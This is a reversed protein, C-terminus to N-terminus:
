VESTHNYAVSAIYLASNFNYLRKLMYYNEKYKDDNWKAWYADREDEFYKAKADYSLVEETESPVLILGDSMGDSKYEIVIECGEPILSGIEITGEAKNINYLGQRRLHCGYGTLTAGFVSNYFLQGGGCSFDGDLISELYATTESDSKHAPPMNKDLTLIAINNGRKLGVKTEYVFDCPMNIIHDAKLVATKVCFDHGLFLNHKKYATALKKLIYMKKTGAPDKLSQCINSAIVDLPM